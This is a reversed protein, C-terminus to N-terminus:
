AAAAQQYDLRFQVQVAFVRLQNVLDPPFRVNVRNADDPDKEVLLHTKFAEMDEVLGLTQMQRYADILEARIIEPTVVAQGEGVPTGSKALKKRPFKTTIRYRLRRIVETLTAPTTVDLWSPDPQGFANLQYTTIAREIAVTGDVRVVATAIGDFLLTNRETLTFAASPDRVTVGTLALTQLPRAPDITIERGATAGFATAILWAPTASARLGLISTHPDNRGNGFSALNGQTDLKAAFVHGFIGRSWAWRGSIDNMAEYVADLAATDTYPLIIYDFEEDGLAAFVAEIDPAGAGAALDAPTVTLGAPVREGGQPGRPAVEVRTGNMHLGKHRATLTVTGLANAADVHRMGDANIAAAIAAGVDDATDGSSVGVQYRRDGIYVPLTGAATAAGAVVLDATAATWGADDAIGYCYVEGFPDNARYQAMMHHLMSGVGFFDAAADATGVLLAAGADASGTGLMQGVLLARKQIQFFGAQSADISAYFLPTRVTTPIGTEIAM